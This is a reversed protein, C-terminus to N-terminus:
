VTQCPHGVCAAAHQAHPHIQYHGHTYMCSLGIDMCKSQTYIRIKTRLAVTHRIWSKLM